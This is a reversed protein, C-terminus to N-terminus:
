GVCFDVTRLEPPTWRVPATSRFREERASWRSQFEACFAAIEEPTPDPTEQRKKMAALSRQRAAERREPSYVNM